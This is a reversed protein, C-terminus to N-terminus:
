WTSGVAACAEALGAPGSGLSGRADRGALALRAGAHSQAIEVDARREWRDANEPGESGARNLAVLPAPGIRALSSCVVEALAPEVSPVAVVVSHDAVSVAVGAPQGHAVELVLPALPRVADALAAPEGGEILCLRGAARPRRGGETGIARALRGASASAFGFPGAWPRGTVAAAGAADGAALELALSRAVTTAGVGPALAVVAVVPRLTIAVPRDVHEVPELLWSGARSLATAVIRRGRYAPTASM